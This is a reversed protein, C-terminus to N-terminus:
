FGRVALPLYVQRRGIALQMAPDGFLTYIRSQYSWSIAQRGVRTLEGLRVTGEEFLAQFMARAMTEEVGLTGEGAPAFIAVAGREPMMLLWEALSRTKDEMPLPDQPPPYMWYGDLCDLSLVFPLGHDAEFKSVNLRTLLYTDWRDVAGHGAYTVMVMGTSWFNILDWKADSTPGGYDDLYLTRTEVDGGLFDRALGELVLKFDLDRGPDYDDAVLLVRHHWAAPAGVEYEVIKSVAEVAEDVSAAPIRGVMVEPTGDLDVDGYRSDIAVEGVYPDSFALYPPIWVPPPEGYDAPNHGKFNFHGDGVLLLYSPPSTPWNGHAHAVFARIAEPHFIGGNFLAYVDEVDVLRVRLGQAGRLDVLPQVATFFEAPAIIIEDAGVTPSILDDPPHYVSIASPAIVASEAVALYTAEAPPGDKLALAHATGSIFATASLLRTATLPHTIDYLHITATSFGTLTMMSTGSLPSALLLVDDEAALRRRYAVDLWNVHVQQLGTDTLVTVDVLNAGDQILSSSVPLRAVWGVQGTWTTEGVLTGNLAFRIRHDNPLRSAFEMALSATYTGSAPATLSIPYTRTDPSIATISYGWFWTEDTGPTMSERSWYRSDEEAHATATYWVLPEGTGDPAVVRSDMRLGSAAADVTLWYVNEDTYKEDQTSGHFKEAFFLLADGPDFTGDGTGVEHLAVEQGRWLLHYASPVTGTVPVGAATLGEHSLRYLGDATIAIRWSPDPLVAFLPLPPVSSPRTPPLVAPQAAAMGTVVLILM